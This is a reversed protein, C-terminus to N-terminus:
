RSDRSSTAYAFYKGGTFQPTAGAIQKKMVVYDVGMAALKPFDEPTVNWRGSGAEVRKALGFDRLNIARKARRICQDFNGPEGKRSLGTM